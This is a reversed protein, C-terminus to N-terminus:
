TLYLAPIGYIVPAAGNLYRLVCSDRAKAVAEGLGVRGKAEKGGFINPLDVDQQARRKGKGGYEQQICDAELLGWNVFTRMAFRDIDKDTVDWLTGVVAPAGAHMYNWPVGYPEYQGAEHMLASSCGMLFTTACHNLKRITRGRVYQAGSGHGFYLLLSSSTLCSVFESETPARSQISSYNPLSMSLTGSFTSQTSDLDESPNLIYSGSSSNVGLGRSITTRCGEILSLRRELDRLSPLRSVSKQRLCPLSEWPICLLEKSPILILHEHSLAEIKDEARHHYLRIADLTKISIMDFDIEDYANREGSFQLIDVVFNLLDSVEEDLDVTDPDGLGLFLDTINSHMRIFNASKTKRRSPLHDEMIRHFAESFAESGVREAAQTAFIGRFGGLWRAQINELLSGLRSDLDQRLRWWQKKYERDQKEGTSHATSNAQSIIDHLESRCTAYDFNIMEEDDEYLREIPLRLTFSEKDHRLTSLLLDKGNDSLSLSVVTWNQPMDRQINECLSLLDTSPIVSMSDQSGPWHFMAHQAQLEKDVAIASAERDIATVDACHTMRMLCSANLTPRQIVSSLLLNSMIEIEKLLRLQPVSACGQFSLEGKEIISQIQELTKLALSTQGMGHPKIDSEEDRVKRTRKARTSTKQAVRKSKSQTNVVIQSPWSVTSDLLINHVSDDLLLDRAYASVSRVHALLQDASADGPSQLEIIKLAEMPRGARALISAKQWFLANRIRLRVSLNNCPPVSSDSSVKDKSQTRSRVVKAKCNIARRGAIVADKVRGSVQKDTFMNSKAVDNAIKEAKQAGFMIQLQAEVNTLNQIAKEAKGAAFAAEALASDIELEQFSLGAHQRIAEIDNALDQGIEEHGSNIHIRVLLADIYQLRCGAGIAIGLKKAQELFYMADQYLGSHTAVESMNVLCRLHLDVHAWFHPGLAKANSSQAESITGLLSFKDALSDVSSDDGADRASSITNSHRDMQAREIYAWIRLIIKVSQKATLMAMDCDGQRLYAQSGIVGALALLHDTKLKTAPSNSSTAKLYEGEATDLAEFCEAVNGNLLNQEASLLHWHLSAVPSIMATELLQHAERLSTVAQGLSGIRNLHGVLRLINATAAVDPSKQLQLTRRVVELAHSLTEVHGVADVYDVVLNLFSLFGEVNEVRTQIHESSPISALLTEWTDLTSSILEMSAQGLHFSAALQPCTILLVYYPELCQDLQLKQQPVPHSLIEDSFEDLMQGSVFGPHHSSRHLISFQVRRRRLPYTDRDYFSLIATVIDDICPGLSNTASQLSLHRLFREMITVRLLEPLSRDAIDSPNFSVSDLRKSLVKSYQLLLRDLLRVRSNDVAWNSESAGNAAMCSLETVVNADFCSNVACQYSRISEALAGQGYLIVALKEYKAALAGDYWEESPRKQIINIAKRLLAAKEPTRAVQARCCLINSIKIINERTADSNKQESRESIIGVLSQVDSLIQETENWQDNDDSVARAKLVMLSSDIASQITKQTQQIRSDGRRTCEGTDMPGCISRVYRYTFQVCGIIVRFCLRKSDPDRGQHETTQRLHDQVALTATKRLKTVDVFLADLEQTGGKLPSKLMELALAVDREVVNLDLSCLKGLSATATKCSIIASAIGHNKRDLSQHKHYLELALDTSGAKEAIDSVTLLTTLPVDENQAPLNFKAMELLRKFSDLVAIAATRSLSAQGEGLRSVHRCFPKWLEKTTDANHSAIRWCICNIELASIRLRFQLLASASQSLPITCEAALYTISQGLAQLHRVAQDDSILKKQWCSYAFNSPSYESSPELINCIGTSLPHGSQALTKLIQVHYGIIQQAQTSTPANKPKALLDILESSASLDQDKTKKSENKANATEAWELQHGFNCLERAALGVLGLALLKNVLISSAQGLQVRGDLDSVSKALWLRSLASLAKEGVKLLDPTDFTSKVKAPTTKSQSQCIELTRNPSRTQLPSRPPQQEGTSHVSLAKEPTRQPKSCYRATSIRSKVEASLVKLSANFSDTAKSVDITAHTLPAEEYIAVKRTTTATQKVRKNVSTTVISAAVKSCGTRASERSTTAGAYQRSKSTTM